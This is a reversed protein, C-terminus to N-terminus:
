GAGRPTHRSRASSHAVPDCRSSSTIATTTTPILLSSQSLSSTPCCCSCCCCSKVKVFRKNFESEISSLSRSPLPLPPPLSDLSLLARQNVFPQHQNSPLFASCCPSSTRATSSSSGAGGGDAVVVGGAREDPSGGGIPFCNFNDHAVILSGASSGGRCRQHSELKRTLNDSISASPSEQHQLGATTSSSSRVGVVYSTVATGASISPFYASEYLSLRERLAPCLERRSLYRRLNLSPHLSPYATTTTTRRTSASSVRVFNATAPRGYSNVKSSLLPPQQQHVRPSPPWFANNNSLSTNSASETYRGIVSNIRSVLSAANRSSSGINGQYNCSKEAICICLLQQQQDSTPHHNNSYDVFRSASEGQEQQNNQRSIIDSAVADENIVASSHLM